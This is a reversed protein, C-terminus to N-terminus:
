TECVVVESHNGNVFLTYCRECKFDVKSGVIKFRENWYNILSKSFCVPCELTDKFKNFPKSFKIKYITGKRDRESVVADFEKRRKLLNQEAKELNVLEKM